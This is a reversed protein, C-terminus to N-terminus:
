MGSIFFFSPSVIPLNLHYQSHSYSNREILRIPCFNSLLGRYVFNKKMLHDRFKLSSLQHCYYIRMQLGIMAVIHVTFCPVISQNHFISVTTVAGLIVPMAPRSIWNPEVVEIRSSAFEPCAFKSEILVLYMMSKSTIINAKLLITIVLLFRWLYIVQILLCRWNLTFISIYSTKLPWSLLKKNPIVHILWANEAPSGM